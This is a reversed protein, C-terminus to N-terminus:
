VKPPPRYSAHLPQDDDFTCAWISAKKCANPGDLTMGRMALLRLVEPLLDGHSCIVIEADNNSAIWEVVTGPDAGEALREDVTVESGLTSALPVVTGVCRVAPSSYVPSNAAVPLEGLQM